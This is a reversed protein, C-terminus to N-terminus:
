TDFRAEVDEAIDKYINETKVPVIFSNTDIYCLNVNEDYKLKVYDQWFEYMVNKSLDIKPLGLYLSMKENRNTIFTRHFSKLIM